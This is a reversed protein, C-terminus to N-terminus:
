DGYDGYVAYVLGLYTSGNYSIIGSRSLEIVAPGEYSMYSRGNYRLQYNSFKKAGTSNINLTVSAYDAANTYTASNFVVFCCAGAVLEFSVGNTM